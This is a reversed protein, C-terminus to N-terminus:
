GAMLSPKIASFWAWNSASNEPNSQRFTLAKDARGGVAASHILGDKAHTNLHLFHYDNGM